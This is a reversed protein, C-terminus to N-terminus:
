VFPLFRLVEKKLGLSFVCRLFMKRQQHSLFTHKAKSTERYKLNLRFKRQGQRGKQSRGDERGVGSVNSGCQEEEELIDCGNGGCPSQM